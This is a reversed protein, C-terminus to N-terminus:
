RGAAGTFLGRHFRTEGLGAGIGGVGRWAKAVDRCVEGDNVGCCSADAADVDIKGALLANGTLYRKQPSVPLAEIRRENNFRQAHGLASVCQQNM